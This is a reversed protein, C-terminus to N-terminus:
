SDGAARKKFTMPRSKKAANNGMGEWFGGQEANKHDEM